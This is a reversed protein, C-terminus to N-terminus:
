PYFQTIQPPRVTRNSQPQVSVFDSSKQTLYNTNSPAPIITMTDLSPPSIVLAGQKLRHSALASYIPCPVERRSVTAARAIYVM